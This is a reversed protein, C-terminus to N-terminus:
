HCSGLPLEGVRTGLGGVLGLQKQRPPDCSASFLTHSGTGPGKLFCTGARAGPAGGLSGLSGGKVRGQALGAGSVLAWM